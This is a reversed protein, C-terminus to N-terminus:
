YDEGADIEARGMRVNDEACLMLLEYAASLESTSHLLDWGARLKDVARDFADGPMNREEWQWHVLYDSPHPDAGWWNKQKM